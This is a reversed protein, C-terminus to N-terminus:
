TVHETTAVSSDVAVPSAAASVATSANSVDASTSSNAVAAATVAQESASAAQLRAEAKAADSAQKAKEYAVLEQYFTKKHSYDYVLYEMPAAVVGIAAGTLLGAGARRMTLGFGLGSITGSIIPHWLERRGRSRELVADTFVYMGSFALTRTVIVPLDRFHAM